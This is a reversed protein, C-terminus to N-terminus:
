SRRCSLPLHIAADVVVKGPFRVRARLWALAFAIPLTVAMAVGGVQLSLAVIGWETADLM